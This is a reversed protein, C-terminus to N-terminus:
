IPSQVRQAFPRMGLTHFIPGARTLLEISRPQDGPAGRATLMRAYDLCTRGLEPQAGSCEAAALAVHFYGEARDWRQQLTAAVGLVRPILFMWGSSFLIGREAALGLAEAPSEALSPATTLDALEV